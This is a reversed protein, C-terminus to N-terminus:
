YASLINQLMGCQSAFVETQISVIAATDVHRGRTNGDCLHTTLRGAFTQHCVLLINLNEGEIDLLTDLAPQTPVDPTIWQVTSERAASVGNQKLLQWTQQARLYPSVFVHTFAQDQLFQANTLVQRQGEETLPRLEDSHVMSQAQGHRMIWLKHM